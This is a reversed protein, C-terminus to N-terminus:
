QSSLVSLQSSACSGPTDNVCHSHGNQCRPGLAVRRHDRCPLCAEQHICPQAAAFQQPPQSSRALLGLREVRDQNRMLMHVVHGPQRHQRPPQPNRHENGLWGVPRPRPRQRRLGRHAIRLPQLNPLLLLLGSFVPRHQRHRRHRLFLKDFLRHHLGIRGRQRHHLVEAGAVTKTDAFDINIWERNRVVSGIRAPEDKM